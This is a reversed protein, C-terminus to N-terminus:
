ACLIALIDTPVVVDEPIHTQTSPALIEINKVLRNVSHIAKEFHKTNGNIILTDMSQDFGLKEITNAIFYAADDNDSVPYTNASLLQGNSFFYIDAYMSDIFNVSCTQKAEHNIKKDFFPILLAAHHIFHPNWVNRMLFGYLAKEINFIIHFKEKEMKNEFIKDGNSKQINFAFLSEVRNKDFFADPVLTYTDSVVIINTRLFSYTFFNYDFIIKKVNELYSLKSNDFKTHTYYFIDSDTPCHICFSFGNPSLRISLIYKEVHTFDINEPLFMLQLLRIKLLCTFM